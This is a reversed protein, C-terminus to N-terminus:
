VHVSGRGEVRGSEIELTNSTIGTLWELNQEAILICLGGQRMKAIAEFATAAAEPALGASPEDLLLLVPRSVLATALALMQRQGGSLYGAKRDAMQLLVPFTEWVEELDLPSLGRRKALAAGLTINELITLDGFVPAGERVLSLGRRTIEHPPRGTVNAGSFEIAGAVKEHVGALSRLLTSKGAGNRGIIGLGEGSGIEFGVDWLVQSRGYWARLATVKLVPKTM